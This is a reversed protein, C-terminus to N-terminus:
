HATCRRRQRSHHTAQRWAAVHSDPPFTMVTPISLAPGAWFSRSRAEVWPALHGGASHWVVTVRSLDLPIGDTKMTALHDIALAVDQFTGPWGGGPAGLRRYEINWVAFGRSAM